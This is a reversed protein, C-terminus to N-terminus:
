AHKSPRGRRRSLPTAEDDTSLLQPSRARMSPTKIRTSTRTPTITQGATAKSVFGQREDESSSSPHQEQQQQKRYQSHEKRGEERSQQQQRNAQLPKQRTEKEEDRTQRQGKVAETM